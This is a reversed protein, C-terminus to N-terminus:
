KMRRPLDDSLGMAQSMVHQKVPEVDNFLRMGFGRVWEIVGPQPTFLRRFGEMVASMRLNDLKRSREYRSLVTLSAISDRRKLAQEVVDCLAAADLFGLNVGQGALPHITHAADGILVGSEVAYQMAHRQRLPVVNIGEVSVVSGPGGRAGLTIARCLSASNLESLDRAHEPSTSWVLSVKRQDSGALPLFALPGDETFRQWCCHQHNADLTVTAILAHQGYDWEHTGLGFLTRAASHAGDAGVLLQASLQRGDDLGLLRRGNEAAGVTNLRAGFHFTIESRARAAKLLGLMILRNEVIFGLQPQHISFSDFEVEGRTEGDWVRMRQYPEARWQSISQWAGLNKLLQVSALTLASVRSDYGAALFDDALQDISSTDINSPDLVHVSLGLDALQIAAALGTMGAGAVVVDTDLVMPTDSSNIM